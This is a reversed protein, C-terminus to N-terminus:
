PFVYTKEVINNGRNSDRVKGEEDAIIKLAHTGPTTHVPIDATVEKGSPIGADFTKMAVKEGDLYVSLSFPPADSGGSNKVTVPLLYLSTSSDATAPVSITGIGASILLALCVLPLIKSLLPYVPPRRNR